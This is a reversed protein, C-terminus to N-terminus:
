NLSISIQHLQHEVRPVEDLGFLAFMSSVIFKGPFMDACM